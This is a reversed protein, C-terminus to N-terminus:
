VVQDETEESTTSAEGWQRRQRMSNIERELVRIKDGQERVVDRIKSLTM